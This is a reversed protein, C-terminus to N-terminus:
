GAAQAYRQPHSTDQGRDGGEQDQPQFAVTEARQFGHDGRQDADDRDGVQDFGDEVPGVPSIDDVMRNDGLETPRLADQHRGADQARRHHGM